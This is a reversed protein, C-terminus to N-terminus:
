NSNLLLKDHLFKMLEAQPIHQVEQDQRGKYEITHNDLGKESVVIRHPIGILEMDAFKVGPREDRDDYLVEHGANLLQQYISESALRVRESKNAFLSVMAIQFPAIGQPWLIGKEDHHQEIAAAVTRTVGIGYCGMILHIKEGKENLVIANMSESYKKGLQFIQGVEIGRALKLKGKKDPSLDGEMVKRLHAKQHYTADRGWNVNIFHKAEINAGCSFNKVCAADHDVIIPMELNVPGLSGFGCNLITKVESEDVMTLPSAVEKLTAAKLTNLTHDGRLILAVLPTQSGKVILTKVTKEPPLHCFKCIEEITKCHPTDIIQKDVMAEKNEVEQTLYEATEVNAAYDSEDSYAILDEGSEALVQFEQSVNGGMTGNDAYVPRFTLGLRSFIRSYAEFMDEYTKQLSAEDLHFSYADKMLFERGRMVGFRPRIEDRFKTQIQYLTIPLQKYSHLERRAIDTIVEEHTPGYCFENHHRDTIRLLEAGYQEWRGSEQWLEAPQMSPMLLEQAGIRDMEERIIMEVKRLVRLGLPLWTYIGAGLKRIMGARLMLRHSQLEADAPTEKLTALLFQSTRM